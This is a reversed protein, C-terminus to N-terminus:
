SGLPKPRDDGKDTKQLTGLLQASLQDNPEVTVANQLQKIAGDTSGLTLYHYALLLSADGKTPNQQQYQELDRLQTKYPEVDTYFGKMTDWDWGPGAALVAYIAAASEQYKKQAFLTLARFEHLTTDKPLLALAKEVLQQAEAYQGLKFSGSAQDFFEVAQDQATAAEPPLDAAAYSSEVPVDVPASSAVTSEVAIPQSYDLYTVNNTAVPVYYPNSYVISEGPSTLWGFAAGSAFAAGPYAWGWGGHYWGSHLGYYPPRYAGGYWGGVPRNV